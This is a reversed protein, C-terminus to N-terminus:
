YWVSILLNPETKKSQVEGTTMNTRKISVSPNQKLWNGIQEDLFQIAGPHLKTFFTKVGTIRDTSVVKPTTKKAVPKLIQPKAAPAAPGAGLNLPAHSVNAKTAGGANLPIPKDLDDGLAIPKDLDDGLPIPEDLNQNAPQNLNDM